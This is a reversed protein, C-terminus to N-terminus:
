VDHDRHLKRMDHERTCRFQKLVFLSIIVLFSGPIFLWQGVASFDGVVIILLGAAFLTLGVFFRPPRVAGPESPRCSPHIIHPNRAATDPSHQHVSSLM